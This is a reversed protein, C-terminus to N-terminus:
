KPKKGVLYDRYRKSKQIFKHVIGIILILAFLISFIFNGTNKYEFAGSMFIILGSFFLIHLFEEKNFLQNDLLDVKVYVREKTEKVRKYFKGYKGCTGLFLSMFYGDFRQFNTYCKWGKPDESLLVNKHGCFGMNSLYICTNCTKM